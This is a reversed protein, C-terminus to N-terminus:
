SLGRTQAAERARERGGGKGEHSGFRSPRQIRPIQTSFPASVFDPDGKLNKKQSEMWAVVDRKAYMAHRGFKVFTPGKGRSRWGSLSSTKMSLFEALEEATWYDRRDLSCLDKDQDGQVGRPRIDNM